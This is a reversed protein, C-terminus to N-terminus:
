SIANVDEENNFKAIQFTKLLFMDIKSVKNRKVHIQKYITEVLIRSLVFGM